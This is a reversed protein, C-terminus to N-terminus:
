EHKLKKLKTHVMGLFELVKEAYGITLKKGYYVIRNRFYRLENMFRVETESFGLSRMYSVEAEHSHYGSSGYGNILLNARVLEMIIDYSDKIISNVNLEDVGMKKVREKLGKLSTNAEEVLFEARSLDIRQKKVVGKKIYENFDSPGNM